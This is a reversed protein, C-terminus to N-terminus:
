AIRVPKSKAKGDVHGALRATVVVTVKKGSLSRPVVFKKGTGVTKKGKKWTFVFSNPSPSWAGPKAKLKKGVKAKGKIKPTSTNVPALGVAVKVAASTSVTSGGAGTATVRCALSTGRDAAVLTRSTGASVAAGNRLWSVAFTTAGSWTGRDCAVRSGVRVAGTVRPGKTATPRSSGGAVWHASDTFTLTGTYEALSKVSLRGRCRLGLTYTGPKITVNNDQAVIALTNSLPASIPASEGPVAGVSSLDAYGNTNIQNQPDSGFGGGLIYIVFGTADSPCGGATTVSMLSDSTGSTPSITLAGTPVAQAAPAAILAASAAIAACAATAVLRRTPFLNM